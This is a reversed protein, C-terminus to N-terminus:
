KEIREIDDFRFEEAAQDLDDFQGSSVSKWFAYLFLAGLAISMPVMLALINM